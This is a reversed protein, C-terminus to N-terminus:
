GNNVNPAKHKIQIKKIEEEAGEGVTEAIAFTEIWGDDGVFYIGSNTINDSKLQLIAKDSDSADNVSANIDLIYDPTSLIITDEEDLDVALTGQGSIKIDNSSNSGIGDTNIQVTNTYIKIEPNSEDEVFVKEAALGFLRM